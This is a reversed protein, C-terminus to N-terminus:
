GLSEGVDVVVPVMLAFVLTAIGAWAWWRRLRVGM